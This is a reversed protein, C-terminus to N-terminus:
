ISPIRECQSPEDSESEEVDQSKEHCADAVGVTVLIAGVLPEVPSVM